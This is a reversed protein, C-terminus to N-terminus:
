YGMKLKFQEYAAKAAELQGTEMYCDGIKKLLNTNGPLNTFCREYSIIADEYQAQSELSDGITEWYAAFQKDLKVATNLAHIAGNFDGTVFLTDITHHLIDLNEPSYELATRLSELADEHNKESLFFKGQYLFLNSMFEKPVTNFVEKQNRAFLYWENLLQYSKKIDKTEIESKIKKLDNSLVIELEKKLGEHDPCYRLGKQLMYKVSLQRGPQTKFYRAFKLLSDCFKTMFSDIELVLKPDLKQATEFYHEAKKRRNYQTALCGLYFSIEGSEPLLKNLKTLLPSALTYNESTMYLRALQLMNQETQSGKNIQKQYKKEKQHFSLVMNINNKFLVLIDKRIGNIDLLRNFNKILWETYKGADNQLISIDQQQRKSDKLGQLTIEKLLHWLEVEDDLDKHFKDIKNIQKQQALSLMEFSKIQKNKPRSIDKLLSNTVQDTKKITKIVNNTTKLIRKFGGLMKEPNIPEAMSYFKKLQRTVDIRSDCHRDMAEQLGMIETGEINAGGETANIHAVKSSGIGAEFFKKMSLFSRNTRLIEGNIGIVTKGEIHTSIVDSPATGQLVTGQVHSASNSDPYALDQGIFIVPDCGLMHASILNLHAVTSAGGTLLNGGLSSNFWAEISKGTFTWFIQDAPFSKATKANVWSACILSTDKVRSTIDAFKEYTLNNPDICTLFHPHVDNKLLAPLVTDVAIIVAKDQSQKLLHINKDLSPGGAVLIAPIGTFKNHLCELLLNHHITTIHKFRNELFTKGLARTTAGEVNLSNLHAYLDEKLKTYGELDYGFSPQHHFVSSDEIQLTQFAPSLSDTIITEPGISLILRSDKLISNLDMYRLAQIFFGPELEFIALHQLYPREELVNLASYGLGMGLIAVFGRHTKPVVKLFDLSEKEPTTEHHLSIAIGKSNTVSLSPNGNPAFSIEGLPLPPNETIYRWTKPHYKKLLELNSEYYDTYELDM